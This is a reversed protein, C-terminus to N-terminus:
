LKLNLEKIIRAIRNRASRVQKYSKTVEFNEIFEFNKQDTKVVSIFIGKQFLEDIQRRTTKSRIINRM